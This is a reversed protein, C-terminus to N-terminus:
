NAVDKLVGWMFGTLRRIVHAVRVFWNYRTSGVNKPGVVSSVAIGGVPTWGDRIHENVFQELQKFAGNGNGDCCLGPVFGLLTGIVYYGWVEGGQGEFSAKTGDSFSLNRM